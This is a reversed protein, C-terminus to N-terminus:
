KLMLSATNGNLLNGPTSGIRPGSIRDVPSTIPTAAGEALGHELALEAGARAQRALPVTTIVTFFLSLARATATARIQHRQAELQHGGLARRRGDGFGAHRHLTTL